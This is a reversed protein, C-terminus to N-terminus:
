SPKSRVLPITLQRLHPTVPRRGQDEAMRAASIATFLLPAQAGEGPRFFAHYDASNMFWHPIWLGSPRDGDNRIVLRNYLPKGDVTTFAREYENNTDFIIFHGNYAYWPRPCRTSRCDGHLKQRVRHKGLIAAHKSFFQDIDVSVDYDTFIPSKGISVHRRDDKTAKDFIIDLDEESAFWVPNDLEPYRKVGGM